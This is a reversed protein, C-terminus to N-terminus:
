EHGELLTQWKTWNAQVDDESLKRHCYMDITIAASAHGLTKSVKDIGYVPIYHMAFSHRMMHPHVAEGLADLGTQAIVKSWYRRSFAEGKQNEFVFRKGPFAARVRAMLEPAVDIVRKKNGKGHRITLKGRSYDSQLLALAESIRMGTEFLFLIMAGTRPSSKRIMRSVEEQTLFKRDDVASEESGADIERFVVDLAARQESSIETRAIAKKLGAKFLNITAPQYPRAPVAVTGDKRMRPATQLRDTKLDRFFARVRDEDVSHGANWQNFVQVARDYETRGTKVLGRTRIVALAKM